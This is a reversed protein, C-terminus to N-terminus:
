INKLDFINLIALFANILRFLTKRKKTIRKLLYNVIVYNIYEDYFCFNNDRRRKYKAKNILNRSDIFRFIQNIIFLNIIINNNNINRTILVNIFTLIIIIINLRSEKFAYFIM